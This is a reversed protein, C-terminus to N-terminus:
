TPLLFSARDRQDFARHVGKCNDVSLSQAIREEAGAVGGTCCASLNTSPNWTMGKLARNADEEKHGWHTDFSAFVRLGTTRETCCSLSACMLMVMM